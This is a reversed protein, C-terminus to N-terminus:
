CPTGDCVSRRYACRCTRHHRMHLVIIAGARYLRLIKRRGLFFQPM